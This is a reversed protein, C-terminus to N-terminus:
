KKRAFVRSSERLSANSIEELSVEVITFIAWESHLSIESKILIFINWNLQATFNKRDSSFLFEKCDRENMHSQQHKEENFDEWRRTM